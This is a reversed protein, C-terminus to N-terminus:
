YRRDQRGLMMTALALVVGPGFLAPGKAMPAV